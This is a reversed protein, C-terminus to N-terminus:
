ILETIGKKKLCDVVLRVDQARDQACVLTADDTNVVVVQELGIVATLRQSHITVDRADITIHDPHGELVNGQADLESVESLAGWHGVDSWGADLPIVEIEDAGEMVGVDISVGKIKLFAQDLVHQYHSQSDSEIAMRVPIMQENLHPLQTAFEELIRRVSFIFVGSNWLYEGSALYQEAIRRPPKEVFQTVSLRSHNVQGGGPYQIYGYGTEPRTPIIGLTLIKGERAGEIASALATQFAQIDAIHHDAPLLIMIAEPDRVYIHQAALAVCPATNRACPEILINPVPLRPCHAKIGDVHHEGAVVYRERWGAIPDLRNMTASILSEEGGIKLFQKPLKQRSLPWFRTGSGGAMVVPYVAGNVVHVRSSM